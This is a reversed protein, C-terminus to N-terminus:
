VYLNAHVVNDRSALGERTSLDYIRSDLCECVTRPGVEPEVHPVPSPWNFWAVFTEAIHKLANELWLFSPKHVFIIIGAGSSHWWVYWQFADCQDCLLSAMENIWVFEMHNWFSSLKHGSLTLRLWVSLSELAVRRTGLKDRTLFHRCRPGSRDPIWGSAWKRCHSYPVVV